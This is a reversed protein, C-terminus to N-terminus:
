IGINYGIYIDINYQIYQMYQIYIFLYIFIYIYIYPNQYDFMAQQSVTEWCAM